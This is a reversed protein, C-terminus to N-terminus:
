FRLQTTECFNNNQAMSDQSKKKKIDHYSIYLAQNM